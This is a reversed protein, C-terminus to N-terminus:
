TGGGTHPFRATLWAADDRAAEERAAAAAALLRLAFLENLLGHVDPAVPVPPLTTM